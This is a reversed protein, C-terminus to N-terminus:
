CSLVHLLKIASREVKAKEEELAQVRLQLQGIASGCEQRVRQLDDAHAKDGEALQSKVDKDRDDLMRQMADLMERREPSVGARPSADPSGEAPRKGLAYGFM